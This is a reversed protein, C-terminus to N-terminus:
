IRFQIPKQYLCAFRCLWLWMQRTVKGLWKSDASCVCYYSGVTEVGRVKWTRTMWMEVGGQCFEWAAWPDELVRCARCIRPSAVHVCFWAWLIAPQSVTKMSNWVNQVSLLGFFNSLGLTVVLAWRLAPIPKQPFHPSASPVLRWCQQCLSSKVGQGLPHPDNGPCSAKWVLPSVQTVSRM